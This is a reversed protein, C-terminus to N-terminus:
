VAVPGPLGAQVAGYQRVSAKPATCSCPRQLIKAAHIDHTRHASRDLARYVIRAEARRAPAPQDGTGSPGVRGHEDVRQGCAGAQRQVDGGDVVPQTGLGRGLSVRHDRRGGRAAEAGGRQADGDVPARHGRRAAGAVVRERGLRATHLSADEGGAM